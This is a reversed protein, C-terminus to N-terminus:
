CSKWFWFVAAPTAGKDEPAKAPPEGRIRDCIAALAEQM